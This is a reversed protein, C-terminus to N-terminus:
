PATAKATRRNARYPVSNRASTRLWNEAQRRQKVRCSAYAKGNARADHDGADRLFVKVLIGHRSEKIRGGEGEIRNSTQLNREDIEHRGSDAVDHHDAHRCRDVVAAFDCTISRHCSVTRFSAMTNKGNPAKSRITARSRMTMSKVSVYAALTGIKM